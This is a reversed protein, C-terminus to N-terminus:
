NPFYKRQFAKSRWRDSIAKGTRGPLHKRIAAWKNGLKKHAEILIKDEKDSWPEKKIGPKLCCHWRELCQKTNRHPLKERVLRAWVGHKLGNQKIWQTLIADEQPTWYRM